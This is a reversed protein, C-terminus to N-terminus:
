DKTGARWQLGWGYAQDVKEQNGKIYRVERQITLDGGQNQVLAIACSRAAGGTEDLRIELEPGTAPTLTVVAQADDFTVGKYIFAFILLRKFSSKHDLNIFLNEGAANAGTRDDGDLYVYPPSDASGFSNGLAQVIGKRGDALEWLCCLDLDTPGMLRKLMGRGPAAQVWNLNVRMRSGTIGEKSLSVMPSAKTLTVKSLRVPPRAPNSPAPSQRTVPPPTAAPRPAPEPKRVNLRPPAPPQQVPPPPPPAQVRPPAPPTPPATVSIGFDTALGELGTSYGQGIARFKWAGGRRYLEGALMATEVTADAIDFRVLDVEAGPDSVLLHLDRIGAFTGNHASAALVVRDVSAPMSELDIELADRSWTGEDKGVHRVAGSPHAPQNYFVFDADSAVRGSAGLLLASADLGPTGPGPRWVLVARVKAPTVPTNQGKGLQQVM